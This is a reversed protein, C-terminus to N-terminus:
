NPKFQESGHPNTLLDTMYLERINATILVM